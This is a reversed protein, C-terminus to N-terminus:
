FTIEYELRWRIASRGPAPTLGWLYGARYELEGYPSVVLGNHEFELELYDVEPVCKCRPM